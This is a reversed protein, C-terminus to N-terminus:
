NAQWVGCESVRDESDMNFLRRNVRIALSGDWCARQTVNAVHVLGDSDPNNDTDPGFRHLHCTGLPPDAQVPASILVSAAISACVLLKMAVTM